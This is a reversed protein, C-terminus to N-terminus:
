RQRDNFRSLADPLGVLDSLTVTAMGAARAPLIDNDLRDGVYAIERAPLDARAALKVFFEMTPKEVGLAASSVIFDAALGLQELAAGAREPQNGAIGVRQGLGRLQRLADRRRRLM